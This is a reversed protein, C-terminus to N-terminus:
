LTVQGHNAQEELITGVNVRLALITRSREVGRRHITVRLHNILQKTVATDDVQGTVAAM